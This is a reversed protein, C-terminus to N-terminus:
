CYIYGNASESFYDNNVYGDVSIDVYCNEIIRKIENKSRQEEAFASPPFDKFANLFLGLAIAGLLLKVSLELKITKMM